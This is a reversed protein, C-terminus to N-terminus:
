PGLTALPQTKGSFSSISKCRECSDQQAERVKPLCFRGEPMSLVAAYRHAPIGWVCGKLDLGTFSGCAPRPM